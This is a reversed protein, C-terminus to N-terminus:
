QLVSSFVDDFLRFQLILEVIYNKMSESRSIAQVNRQSEVPEALIIARLDNEVRSRITKIHWILQFLELTTLADYGERKWHPQKSVYIKKAPFIIRDVPARPQAPLGTIICTKYYVPNPVSDNYLLRECKDFEAILFPDKLVYSKFLDTNQKVVEMLCDINIEDVDNNCNDPPYTYLLRVLTKRLLSWVGSVVVPDLTKIAPPIDEKLHLIINFRKDDSLIGESIMPALNTPRDLSLKTM